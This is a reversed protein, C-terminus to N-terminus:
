EEISDIGLEARIADELEDPKFGYAESATDEMDDVLAPMPELALKTMCVKAVGKRELISIPDEVIPMGGGGM